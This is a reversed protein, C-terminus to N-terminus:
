VLQQTGGLAREHDVDAATGPPGNGLQRILAYPHHPDVDVILHDSQRPLAPRVALEADAVRIGQRKLIPLYRL